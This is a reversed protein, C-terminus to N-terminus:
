LTPISRGRPRRSPIRQRQPALPGEHRVSLIEGAPLTRTKVSGDNVDQSVPYAVEIGSQVTLLIWHLLRLADGAIYPEVIKRQRAFQAPVEALNGPYRISVIRVDEVLKRIFRDHLTM